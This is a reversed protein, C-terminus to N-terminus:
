SFANIFRITLQIYEGNTKYIGAIALDINTERGVKYIVDGDIRSNELGRKKLAKLIINKQPVYLSSIKSLKEALMYELGFGIWDYGSSRNEFPMIGIKIKETTTVSSQNNQSASNQNTSEQASLPIIVFNTLLIIAILNSKIITSYRFFFVKSARM